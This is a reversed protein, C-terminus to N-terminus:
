NINVSLVYNEFMRKVEDRMGLPVEYYVILQM